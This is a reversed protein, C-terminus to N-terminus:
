KPAPDKADKDTRGSGPSNLHRKTQAKVVHVARQAFSIM